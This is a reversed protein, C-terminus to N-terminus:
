KGGSKSTVMATKEGGELERRQAAIKENLKKLEAEAAAISRLVDDHEGLKRRAADVADRGRRAARDAGTMGELNVLSEYFTVLAEYDVLPVTITAESSTATNLAFSATRHADGPMLLPEDPAGLAHECDPDAAPHNPLVQGGDQSKAQAPRPPSSPGGNPKARSLAFSLSSAAGKNYERTLGRMDVDSSAFTSARSAGTPAPPAPAAARAPAAATVKDPTKFAAKDRKAPSKKSPSAKEDVKPKKPTSWEATESVKRKNEALFERMPAYLDATPLDAPVGKASGVTSAVVEEEEKEDESSDSEVDEVTAASDKVFMLTCEGSKGNIGCALCSVVRDDDGPDFTCIRPRGNKKMDQSAACRNCPLVLPLCNTTAWDDFNISITHKGAANLGRKAALVRDATMLSAPWVTNLHHDADVICCVVAFCLNSLLAFDCPRVLDRLARASAYFWADVLLKQDKKDTSQVQVKTIRYALFVQALVLSSFQRDRREDALEEAIPPDKERPQEFEVAFLSAEKEAKMFSLPVFASGIVKGDEVCLSHPASPAETCGAVAVECATHLWTALEASNEKVAVRFPEVVERIWEDMKHYGSTALQADDVYDVGITPSVAQRTANSGKPM